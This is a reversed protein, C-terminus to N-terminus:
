ARKGLREGFYIMLQSYITAWDMPFFERLPM